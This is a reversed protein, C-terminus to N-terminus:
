LGKLKQGANGVDIVFADVPHAAAQQARGVARRVFM